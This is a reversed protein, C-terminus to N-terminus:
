DSQTLTAVIKGGPLFGGAATFDEKYTGKKLPFKMKHPFAAFPPIPPMSNTRGRCVIRLQPLDMPGRIFDVLATVVSSGESGSLGAGIIGTVHIFGQCTAKNVFTFSCRNNTFNEKTIVLLNNKIESIAPDKGVRLTFSASDVWKQTFPGDRTNDIYSDIKVNYLDYLHVVSTLESQDILQRENLTIIKGRSRRETRPATVFLKLAIKVTVDYNLPLVTPATYEARQPSGSEPEIIGYTTSGNPRNNVSWVAQYNGLPAITPLPPLEDEGNGADTTSSGPSQVINLSFDLKGNVKVTEERPYLEIMNANVVASFHTIFGKLSRTTSDLDEYDHYSWTGKHDQIALFMFEPPCTEAEKKTYHFILSVPKQFKTGSPELRYSKGNGNPIVNAGTQISISTSNMLAGEPFILQLKGDDSTITGGSPGIEKSVIKGEPAGVDTVSPLALYKIQLKDTQAHSILNTFLLALLVITKM